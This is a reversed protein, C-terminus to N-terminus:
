HQCVSSNMIEILWFNRGTNAEQKLDSPMLLPVAAFDFAHLRIHCFCLFFVCKSRLSADFIGHLIVSSVFSIMKFWSFCMPGLESHRLSMATHKQHVCRSYDHSIDQWVASSSKMKPPLQGPEPQFTKLKRPRITLLVKAMTIAMCRNQKQILFHLATFQGM